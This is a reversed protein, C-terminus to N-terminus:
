YQSFGKFLKSFIIAGLISYFPLFVYKWSKLVFFHFSPSIIIFVLFLITSAILVITAILSVTFHEVAESKEVNYTNRKILMCSFAFYLSFILLELLCNNQYSLFNSIINFIPGKNPICLALVWLNGFIGFILLVRYLKEEGRICKNVYGLFM